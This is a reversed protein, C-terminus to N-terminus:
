CEVQIEEGTLWSTKPIFGEPPVFTSEGTEVNYYYGYRSKMILKLWPGESSDLVLIHISNTYM